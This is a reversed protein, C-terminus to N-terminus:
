QISGEFEIMHQILKHKHLVDELIGFALTFLQEKVLKISDAVVTQKQDAQLGTQCSTGMNVYGVSYDM